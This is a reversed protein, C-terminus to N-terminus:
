QVGDRGVATTVMTELCVHYSVAFNMAKADPRLTLASLPLLAACYVVVDGRM